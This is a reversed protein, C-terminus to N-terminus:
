LDFDHDADEEDRRRQEEREQELREKELREKRERETEQPAQTLDIEDGFYKLFDADKAVKRKKKERARHDPVNERVMKKKGFEAHVADKKAMRELNRALRKENEEKERAQVELYKKYKRDAEAKRLVEHFDMEVRKSGKSLDVMRDFVECLLHMREENERLVHLLTSYDHARLLRDRLETKNTARTLKSPSQSAGAVSGTALSAKSQANKNRQLSGLPAPTPAGSVGDAGGASSGGEDGPHEQITQM